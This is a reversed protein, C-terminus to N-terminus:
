SHQAYHLGCLGTEDRYRIEHDIGAETLESLFAEFYKESSFNQAITLFFYHNICAVEFAMDIVIPQSLLYVEEIYPDLPGFSRSNAYSVAFSWRPRGAAAALRDFKMQLPMQELQAYTQRRQKMAWLSNEPQTQLMLQGRAVTCAKLIDDLDSDKPFDLEAVNAFMRYNDYNGLIAKHDIAVCASITKDSKPDARRIAKTMLVSILINPSGDNEKCYKMVQEESLRLYYYCTAKDGTTNMRYFDQVTENQYLPPEANDINLGAFPDGTESEPIMDGPLRFGERDFSEGTKRSLYLFLVSKIYPLFGAGDSISHSMELALRNGEYKFAALHYNAAESCLDIPSWTNRVTMPLPNPKPLLDNGVAEARVYFYPFRQRLEEVVESLVDGDVPEKLVVCAGMTNPNEPTCMYIMPEYYKAM